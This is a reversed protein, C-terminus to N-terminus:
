LAAQWLCDHSSFMELFNIEDLLVQSCDLHKTTAQLVTFTKSGFNVFHEQLYIVKM